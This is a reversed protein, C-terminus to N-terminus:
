SYVLAHHRRFFRDGCLRKTSVLKATEQLASCVGLLWSFPSRGATLSQDARSNGLALRVSDMGGYGRRGGSAPMVLFTDRAPAYGALDGLYTGGSLLDRLPFLGLDLRVM